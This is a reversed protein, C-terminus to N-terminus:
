NTKKQIAKTNKKFFLQHIKDSDVYIFILQTLFTVQMLFHCYLIMECYSLM